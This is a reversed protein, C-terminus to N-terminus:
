IQWLQEWISIEQNTLTREYSTFTANFNTKTERKEIPIIEIKVGEIKCNELKQSLELWSLNTELSYSRKISPYESEDEYKKYNDFSLWNPDFKLHLFWVVKGLPIDFMKKHINKVQILHLEAKLYDESYMKYSYAEGLESAKGLNKTVDIELNLKKGLSYILSTMRCTDQCVCTASLNWTEWTNGDISRSFPSPIVESHTYIRGLEFVAPEKKGIKINKAITEMSQSFLSDRLFPEDARQSSLAELSTQPTKLISSILKNQPLFPRTIIESFGFDAFINKIGAITNTNDPTKSNTAFNLYEPQLNEFGVLKAIEFLLDENNKLSNYFPNLSVFEGDFKGLLNLKQVIIQKWYDLGRSDLRNAIMELDVKIKPNKFGNLYSNIDIELGNKSLLNYSINPCIQSIKYLFLLQLKGLVGSAFFKASDSRYSMAFSNRAVMEAPFNTIEFLIQTDFAEVKTNESGTVGPVILIKDNEDKLVTLNKPLIGKKFQGLGEFTIETELKEFFWNNSAIKSGSFFHNPQGFDFLFYNSLDALGGILNKNTLFMRTQMKCPLVFEKDLKLTFINYKWDESQIIEPSIGLSIQREDAKIKSVIETYFDEDNKVKKAFDRLLEPKQLCLAIEIALGLHNACSALKDQLYKMDFVTDLPFDRRAFDCISQGMNVDTAELEWLGDSHEELGLESKGCCMGESLVGRLKKPVMTLYPLKAGGLAVPVFIGDRANPAASVIQVSYEGCNVDFINLKDAEPHKRLNQIKGVVVKGGFYDSIEIIEDCEGSKTSLMDGLETNTIGSLDVYDELWSKLILM